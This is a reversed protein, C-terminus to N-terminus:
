PFRRELQLCVAAKMAFWSNLRVPQPEMKEIVPTEEKVKGLLRFKGEDFTFVTPVGLDSKLKLAYLHWGKQIKAKFILKARDASVSEVSYSWKVPEVIQAQTLFGLGLLIFTLFKKM